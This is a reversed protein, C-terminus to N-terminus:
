DQKGSTKAEPVLASAPALSAQDPTPVVSSDQVMEIWFNSTIEELDFNDDISFNLMQIYYTKGAEFTWYSGLEDSQRM